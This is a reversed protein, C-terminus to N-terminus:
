ADLAAAAEAALGSRAPDPGEMGPGEGAHFVHRSRLWWSRLVRSRRSGRDGAAWARRGIGAGRGLTAARDHRRRARDRARGRRGPRAGPPPRGALRALRRLAAEADDGSERSIM